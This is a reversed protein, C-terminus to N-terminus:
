GAYGCDDSTAPTVAVYVGVDEFSYAEIYAASELASDDLWVQNDLAPTLVPNVGSEERNPFRAYSLM